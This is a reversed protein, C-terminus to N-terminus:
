YLAEVIIKGSSDILKITENRKAWMEVTRNLFIRWEDKDFDKDNKHDALCGQYSAHQQIFNQCSSGLSTPLSTPMQCSKVKPLYELCADDLNSAEPLDDINPCRSTISPIFQHFQSFYGSCKNIKFNVGKTSKGTLIYAIDGTKLIIPKGNEDNGIKVAINNKNKLETDSLNIDEEGRNRITIYEKQPDTNQAAQIEFTIQTTKVIDTSKTKTTERTGREQGGFISEPQSIIESKSSPALRPGSGPVLNFDGGRMSWVVGVIALIFFLWLADRASTTM